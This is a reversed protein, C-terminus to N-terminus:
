LQKKKRSKKEMKIIDGKFRRNGKRMKKKKM